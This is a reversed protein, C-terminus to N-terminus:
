VLHFIYMISHFMIFFYKNIASRIKYGCMIVKMVELKKIEKSKLLSAKSGTGTTKM